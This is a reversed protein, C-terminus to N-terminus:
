CCAFVSPPFSTPCFSSSSATWIATVISPLLMWGFHVYTLTLWTMKACVDGAGFTMMTKRMTKTTELDLDLDWFSLCCSDRRFACAVKTGWSVCTEPWFASEVGLFSMERSFVVQASSLLCVSDNGSSLWCSIV